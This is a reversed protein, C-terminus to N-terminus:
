PFIWFNNYANAGAADDYFRRVNPRFRGTNRNHPLVQVPRIAPFVSLGVRPLHTRIFGDQM